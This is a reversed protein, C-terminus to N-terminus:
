PNKDWVQLVSFPMKPRRKYSVEQSCISFSYNLYPLCSLVDGHRLLGTQKWSSPALSGRLMKSVAEPSSGRDGPTRWGSTHSVKVLLPKIVTDREGQLPTVAIRNDCLDHSDEALSSVTVNVKGAPLVSACQQASAASLQIYWCPMLVLCASM